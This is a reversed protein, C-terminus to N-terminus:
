QTPSPTASPTASPTPSPTASPSPTPSIVAMVPASPQPEQQPRSALLVGGGTAVAGAVLLIALKSGLTLGGSGAAAASATTAAAATSAAATSGAAAATLGLAGKVALLGREVTQQDVALNQEQLLLALFLLGPNLAHLRVGDRQERLLILKELAKRAYNLRSKVTGEACQLISAIQRVPCQDYYYLMVATRQEDPLQDVLEGLILGTDRECLTDEPSSVPPVPIWFTM